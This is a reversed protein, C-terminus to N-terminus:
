RSQKFRKKRQKKEKLSGLLNIYTHGYKNKGIEAKKDTLDSSFIFGNIGKPKIWKGKLSFNEGINLREKTDVSKEIVLMKEVPLHKLSKSGFTPKEYVTAGLM